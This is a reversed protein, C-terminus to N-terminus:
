VVGNIMWFDLDIHDDDNNCMGKTNLHSLREVLDSVGQGSWYSLLQRGTSGSLWDNDMKALAAFLYVSCIVAQVIWINWTPILTSLVKGDQGDESLIVGIALWVSCMGVVAVHNAIGFLASCLMMYVLGVSGSALILIKWLSSCSILKHARICINYQLDFGDLVAFLLALTAYLYEHNNYVMINRFIVVLKLFAFCLFFLRSLIGSSLLMGGACLLMLPAHLGRWYMEVSGVPLWPYGNLAERLLNLPFPCRAASIAFPQNLINSYAELDQVEFAFDTCRGASYVLMLAAFSQRFFILPRPDSMHLHRDDYKSEKDVM